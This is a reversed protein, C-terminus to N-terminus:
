GAFPSPSNDVEKVEDRRVQRGCVDCVLPRNQVVVLQSNCVKHVHITEVAMM